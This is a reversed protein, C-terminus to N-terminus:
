LPERRFVDAVRRFRQSRIDHRRKPMDKSSAKDEGGCTPCVHPVLAIPAVGLRSAPVQRYPTVKSGEHM